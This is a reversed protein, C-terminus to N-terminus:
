RYLRQRQIREKDEKSIRMDAPSLLFVQDAVKEITGGLGYTLGSCFDIMRRVLDREALELNVIIPQSQKFHNGIQQAESYSKPAVVYPKSFQQRVSPKITPIDDSEMLRPTSVQPKRGFNDSKVSRIPVPKLQPEEEEVRVSSPEVRKRRPYVTEPEYSREEQEEMEYGDYPEYDEDDYYDDPDGIGLGAMVKKLFPQM